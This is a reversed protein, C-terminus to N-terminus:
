QDDGQPHCITCIWGADTAHHGELRSHETFVSEPCDMGPVWHAESPDPEVVPIADFLATGPLGGAVLSKRSKSSDPPTDKSADSSDPSLPTVGGAHAGALGSPEPRDKSSDAGSEEFLATAETDKSSDAVVEPLSWEWGGRLGSKAKSAHLRAAARRTADRGYGRSQMLSKVRTAAVSGDSLIEELAQVADGAFEDEANLQDISMSAEGLWEIAPVTDATLWGAPTKSEIRYRQPLPARAYNLKTVGVVKTEGTDDEKDITATWVARAAGVIGGLSGAGRNLTSASTDKNFHRVVVIGVDAAEASRQLPNMVHRRMDADAISRVKADIHSFLPDLIVLELGEPQAALEVVLALFAEAVEPFVIESKAFLALDPRGGAVEIRPRLVRGPDDETTIWLVRGVPGGPTGDPWERGTTIRAVLDALLTSKSVGPNGDFVTVVGRALWAPWLWQIPESEFETLAAIRLSGVPVIAPIRGRPEGLRKRTEENVVKDFRGRVERETLPDDFRPALLDRVLPWMEDPTLERNYLHATYARIAEYRLGESVHEPMVYGGASVVLATSSPTPEVAARAWDDPLEAIDFAGGAPTYIAGSAHVSRPGIVYGAAKGSGWRTVYGFLGHIPRPHEDPWRLFIHEGHATATTLTPPLPGHRQELEALRDVGDGDVDLAFVGDPCVLGYNPESGASLFARIKAADLTADDFGHQTIPHKGANMCDVGKPCRCTGDPHTSWVPFVGFGREAFWLAARIRDDATPRTTTAATM